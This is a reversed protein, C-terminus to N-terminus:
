FGYKRRRIEFAERGGELIEEVLERVPRFDISGMHGHNIRASGVHDGHASLGVIMEADGLVPINANHTSFTFQRRQKQERVRPIIEETIFRNDLDDEPQDIILPADSDLLLLLLVATAKQGTSLQELKQWIPDEGKSATNLQIITVPALELEEIKMFIEPDARVIHEAQALPISYASMLEDAGSRCARVFEPLSLEPVDELSTITESLRGGIEKRLLESLSTRNGGFTVSVRVRNSLKASVRQAAQDLIRFNKAKLDEWRAILARRGELCERVLNELIKLREQFPRLKEISKRLQIFEEGDVRSKQLDRLIEEYSLMVQQKRIEWQSQIADIRHEAKTVSQRLENCAKRMFAELEILVENITSLIEKGPLEKLARESLFTRDIPLEREINEVTDLFPQLREPISSLVREERVLLSQERLKEELGAEQFRKLTEELGPLAALKEEISKIERSTDCLIRRNTHLQGRLNAKLNSLSEDHEVFRDLLRTLKEPSKTLESIEHQGFVEVKPLIDTPVLDTIEGTKKRVLPPNPLTREIIYDHVVPRHLRVHISIKTGSRLVQRVIGEHAIQADDGVPDLGLVARISEIVTSKGTGRGGILVNLNPNLKIQVGDLFGGQWNLELIESYLQQDLDEVKPNLRIRSGPDLFAQRLGDISVDSMKIQCTAPHKELDDPNVIDAANIVAIANDLTNSRHYDRNKNKIIERIGPQLDDIEGPIQVALLNEDKWAQIRAQGDLVKFLGKDNTVHAAIAIGGQDHVIRLVDAFSKDSLEASSQTNRIGLEGLYRELKDNGIDPPYLCLLHIGENSSLEFGPFIYIDHGQGANRFDAIGDVNNHDTIALVKIGLEVAKRIIAQAHEKANGDSPQGRFKQKYHHPNVQLACKYFVAGEQPSHSNEPLNSHTLMNDPCQLSM